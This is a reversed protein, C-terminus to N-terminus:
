EYDKLAKLIEQKAKELYVINDNAERAIDELAGSDDGNWQGSIEEFSNIATQIEHLIKELTEEM